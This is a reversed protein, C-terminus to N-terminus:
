NKYGRKAAVVGRLYAACSEPSAHLVQGRLKANAECADANATEEFSYNGYYASSADDDAMKRLQAPSVPAILREELYARQSRTAVTPDSHIQSIRGVAWLALIVGLVILWVKRKNSPKPPPPVNTSEAFVNNNAPQQNNMINQKRFEM